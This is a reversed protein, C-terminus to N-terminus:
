PASLIIPSISENIGSLKRRNNIIRIPSPKIRLIIGMLVARLKTPTIIRIAM